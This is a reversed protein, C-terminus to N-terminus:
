TVMMDRFPKADAIGTLAPHRRRLCRTSGATRQARGAGGCTSSHPFHGEHAARPPVDPVLGDRRADIVVTPAPIPPQTAITDELKQYAPDGAVVGYRHRYSHVVVDVFDPNDFSTATAAFKDDSFAWEPSWERWLLRAFERRYKDLGARGRDGHLYYTYCLRREVQAPGPFAAAPINQVHYGSVSALAQVRQPWLMATLCAARGGWDFGAVVPATL